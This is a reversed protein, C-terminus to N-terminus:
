PFTVSEITKSRVDLFVQGKKDEYKMLTHNHPKFADPNIKISSLAPGKQFSYHLKVLKDDDFSLEIPYKFEGEKWYYKNKEVLDAEGMIRLVDAKSTKGPEFKQIKEPLHPKLSSLWDSAFALASNIALISVLFYVYKM